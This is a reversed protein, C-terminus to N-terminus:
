QLRRKAVWGMYPSNIISRHAHFCSVTNASQGLGLGGSDVSSDIKLACILEQGWVAPAKSRSGPLIKVTVLEVTGAGPLNEARDDVSGASCGANCGANCGAISM